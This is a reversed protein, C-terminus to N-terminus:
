LARRQITGPLRNVENPLRIHDSRVILFLFSGQRRDTSPWSRERSLEGMKRTAGFSCGGRFSEPWHVAFPPYEPFCAAKARRVSPSLRSGCSFNAPQRFREPETVSPALMALAQFAKTHHIALTVPHAHRSVYFLFMRNQMIKMELETCSHHRERAIIHRHLIRESHHTFMQVCSGLSSQEINGM